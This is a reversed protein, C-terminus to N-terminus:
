KKFLREMRKAAGSSQMLNEWDKDNYGAEKFEKHVHAAFKSAAEAAEVDVEFAKGISAKIDTRERIAAKNFKDAMENMKKSFLEEHEKKM